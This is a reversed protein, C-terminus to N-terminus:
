FLVNGKKKPSPSQSLFFLGKRRPKRMAPSSSGLHMREDIRRQM